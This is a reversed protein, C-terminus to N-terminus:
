SICWKQSCRVICVRVIAFTVAAFYKYILMCSRTKSPDVYGSCSKRDFLVCVLIFDTHQTLVIM